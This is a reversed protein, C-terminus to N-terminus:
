ELNGEVTNKITQAKVYNVAYEPNTSRNVYEFFISLLFHLELIDDLILSTQMYKITNLEGIISCVCLTVTLM